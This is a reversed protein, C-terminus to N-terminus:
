GIIPSSVFEIYADTIPFITETEFLVIINDKQLVHRPIYLTRQPGIWWYRGVNFTNVVSVGKRWIDLKLFTDTPEVLISLNFFYFAPSAVQSSIVAVNQVNKFVDNDLVHKVKIDIPEGNWLVDGLIGKNTDTMFPGYNVRGQNEVMISLEIQDVSCNLLISNNSNRDLVGQLVKDVIIYSRDHFKTLQLLNENQHCLVLANYLVYGYAVNLDEFSLSSEYRRERSMKDLADFISVVKYAYLKGYATKETPKPQPGPPVPLYKSVVHQIAFYKETPDGAESLPADYDYSTPQPQLSNSDQNAGNMFGFNTGGEFMYMNVSANLALMKDLTDTVVELSTHAHQGGWHDLWGTYFESNILPGLPQYKRQIDFYQKPEATPGFDVTAFLSKITGCKLYSDGAGDTTFLIVNEGLYKRFISELKYMYEHDCGYSGYENEVQVTIIPGGNEYLYPRLGSLLVSMYNEVKQLYLNDSTRLQMTKNGVKKLLWYPFGGFEWEACIYPGPRLIVLLDYKQALKLFKFVNQQGGFQFNGETPEHFNWPIYTQIANLGAKRIKSLRDEWYDEPIRMYHISGSIYRFETGDKLFKNNEYDIKFTRESSSVKAFVILLSIFVNFIM